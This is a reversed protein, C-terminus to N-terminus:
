VQGGTEEASGRREFRSARRTSCISTGSALGVQIPAGREIGPRGNAIVAIQPADPATAYIQTHGGLSESFDCKLDSCRSGPALPSVTPVCGSPSAPAPPTARAEPRPRDDANRRCLRPPRACGLRRRGAGVKAEIFNMKPSGIFGAVFRNAPEDYLESPTGVQEILGARLVVIRDALTMAEVQDHTVYVMTVGLERHLKAIEVRMQARLEADLNSLPEDFLFLKPKRVIARGIAVRQRQGGSLESRSATSCRARDAPHAGGRRGSGQDSRGAAQAMKLGFAINDFVSM